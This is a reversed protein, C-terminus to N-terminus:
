APSMTGQLRSRAWEMEKAIGEALTMSRLEAPLVSWTYTEVEFHHIEDDPRIASLCTEIDRQTTGIRGLDALFIPVHYHVRWEDGALDTRDFRRLALPLDEFFEHQGNHAVMTQHLYRDEAFPRLEALSESRERASLNRLDLRLASSIQVKGVKIGADRYARLVERQDEFMVAAHCVDHCIRVHRRMQERDPKSLLYHEFFCLVDHSRQLYCGPEPEINLHILRGTRKETDIMAEVALRLMNAAAMAEGEAIDAAWGIPLTSISGEGGEPLLEALIHILDLTYQLRPREVWNPHYVRHKVSAQHFDGFPFGNITFVRLSHENLWLAFDRAAQQEHLRRAARASLWLGVGLPEDPSILRKVALAHEELNAKTEGLSPGAHVNTCYAIM